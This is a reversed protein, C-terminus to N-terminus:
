WSWFAFSAIFRLALGQSIQEGTLVSGFEEGRDLGIQRGEEGLVGDGDSGIQDSGEAADGAMESGEGGFVSGGFGSVEGFENGGSAGDEGVPVRRLEGFGM